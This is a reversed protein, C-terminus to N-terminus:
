CNQLSAWTCAGTSDYSLPGTFGGGDGAPNAMTLDWSVADCAAVAGFALTNGRSLQIDYTAGACLANGGCLDVVAPGAGGGTCSAYTTIDTFMAEMQTAVNRSDAVMSSRVARSRYQAFQPIAIAALIGIIAVVILLEILTFGREDRATKVKLDNLRKLM